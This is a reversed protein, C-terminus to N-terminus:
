VVAAWQDLQVVSGLPDKLEQHVLFDLQALHAVFALMERIEKLVRFVQTVRPAKYEGIVRLGVFDQAAWRDLLERTARSAMAAVLAKLDLHGLIVRPGKSGWREVSGRPDWQVLRVVLVHALSEENERRGKFVKHDRLVQPVVVGLGLQVVTALTVRRGRFVKSDEHGLADKKARREKLVKLGLHDLWVAYVRHAVTVEPVQQVQSAMREMPALPVLLM